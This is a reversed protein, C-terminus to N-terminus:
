ILPKPLAWNLVEPQADTQGCPVPCVSCRPFPLKSHFSARFKQGLCKVRMQVYYSEYYNLHSTSVLPLCARCVFIPTGQNVVLERRVKISLPNKRRRRRLRRGSMKCVASVCFADGDTLGAGVAVGFANQKGPASYETRDEITAITWTAYQNCIAVVDCALCASCFMERLKTM